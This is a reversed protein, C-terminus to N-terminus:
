TTQEKPIKDLDIMPEKEWALHYEDMIGDVKVMRYYSIMGGNLYFWCKWTGKQQANYTARDSHPERFGLKAGIFMCASKPQEPDLPARESVYM